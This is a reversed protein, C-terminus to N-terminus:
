KSVRFIGNAGGKGSKSLQTQYFDRVWSLFGEIGMEYRPMHRSPEMNDWVVVLAHGVDPLSLMEGVFKLFPAEAPQSGRWPNLQHEFTDNIDTALPNSNVTFIIPSSSERALEDLLQAEKDYLSRIMTVGFIAGLGYKAVIELIKRSVNIRDSGEPLSLIVDFGPGSL